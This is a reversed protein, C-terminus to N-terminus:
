LLGVKHFGERLGNDEVDGTVLDAILKVEEKANGMAVGTGVYQLMERDNLGDGFAYSREVPIGVKELFKQVGIAKSGGLPLVDMSYEHWRIYDLADHKQLYHAEDTEECFLLAQYIDTQKYFSPDITPYDMKLSGLSNAIYGHEEESARMEEHNLFVMPHGTAIAEEYLADLHNTPLPNSYIVEDEYVVYQGNFSVFSHIDLEERLDKFMFPARGTAIAVTVGQAKLQDVAERTAAPIRKDHDLITGDIDLFVIPQTM